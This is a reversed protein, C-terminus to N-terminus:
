EVYFHRVRHNKIYERMEKETVPLGARRKEHVDMTIYEPKELLSAVELIVWGLPWQDLPTTTPHPIQKKM